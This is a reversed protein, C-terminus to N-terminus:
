LREKVLCKLNFILLTTNTKLAECLAKAGEDGIRNDKKKEYNTIILYCADTTQVREELSELVFTIMTTNKELMQKLAEVGKKEIGNDTEFM